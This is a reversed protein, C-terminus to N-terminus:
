KLITNFLLEFPIYFSNLIEFFTIVNAFESAKILIIIYISFFYFRFQYIQSLIQLIEIEYINIIHVFYIEKLLNIKVINKDRFTYEFFLNLLYFYCVIKTAISVFKM